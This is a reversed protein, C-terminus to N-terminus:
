KALVTTLAETNVCEVDQEDSNEAPCLDYGLRGYNANIVHIVKDNCDISLTSDQCAYALLALLM